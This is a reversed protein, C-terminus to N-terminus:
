GGYRSLLENISAQFQLRGTERDSVTVHRGCQDWAHDWWKLPLEVRDAAFEIATFVWPEDQNRMAYALSWFEYGLEM